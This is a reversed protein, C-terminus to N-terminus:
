YQGKNRQPKDKIRYNVDNTMKAKKMDVESEMNNSAYVYMDVYTFTYMHRVYHCVYM